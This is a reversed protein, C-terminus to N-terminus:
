SSLSKKSVTTGSQSRVSHGHFHETLKLSLVLEATMRQLSYFWGRWGDLLLGKVFLAHFLVAFPAVWRLKRVRDPFALASAPTLLIKEVEQDAYGAQSQLWRSLSKWDDHWMFASLRRVEGSTVRLKHAHGDQKVIARDRRFLCKIPPYLSARLPKGYVCYRFPIEFAGTAESPSAGSIEELLEPTVRYDADMGLIWPTRIGCETIGYNWQVNLIDFRRQVVRVRPYRALIELTEDNSFSDVVVVEEAWELGKLCAEINAAENYTLILPTIDTLKM